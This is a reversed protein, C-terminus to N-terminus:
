VWELRRASRKFSRCEADFWPTLSHRRSKNTTYPAHRDLLGKLTSSYRDFLEDTSINDLKALDITYEGLSNWAPNYQTLNLEFHTTACYYPHLVSYTLPCVKRPWKSSPSTLTAQVGCANQTQMKKANWKRQMRSFHTANQSTNRQFYGVLDHPTRVDM